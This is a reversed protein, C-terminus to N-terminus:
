FLLLQDLAIELDPFALPSISGDTYETIKSYSNNQPHTHVILKKNVLDIIWYEQIDNRAYIASKEVLDKSLTKNAIEFTRTGLGTRQASEGVQLFQRKSAPTSCPEQVSGNGGSRDAVRHLLQPPSANRDQPNGGHAFASLNGPM